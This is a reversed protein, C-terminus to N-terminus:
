QCWTSCLVGHLFSLSLLLQLNSSEVMCKMCNRLNLCILKLVQMKYPELNFSYLMIVLTLSVQYWPKLPKVINNIFDTTPLLTRTKNYFDFSIWKGNRVMVFASLLSCYFWFDKKSPFKTFIILILHM